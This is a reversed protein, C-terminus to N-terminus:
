RSSCFRASSAVLERPEYGPLELGKVHAAFATKAIGFDLLRASGDLAVMVNQPSVDRHIIHLPAGMEDVTTHAAQLGALM